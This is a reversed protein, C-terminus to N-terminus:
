QIISIVMPPVGMFSTLAGIYCLCIHNTNEQGEVLQRAVFIWSSLILLADEAILKFKDHVVRGLVM